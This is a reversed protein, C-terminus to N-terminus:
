VRDVRKGARAGSILAQALAQALDLTQADVARPADLLVADRWKEPPLSDQQGLWARYGLLAAAERVGRPTYIPSHADVFGFRRTKQAPQMAGAARLGHRGQVAFQELRGWVAEQYARAQNYLESAQLTATEDAWGYLLGLLLGEAGDKDPSFPTDEDGPFTITPQMADGFSKLRKKETRSLTITGEAAWGCLLAATLREPPVSGDLAELLAFQRCLDGGLPCGDAPAAQRAAERRLRAATMPQRSRWLRYLGVIVALLVANIGVALLVSRTDIAM